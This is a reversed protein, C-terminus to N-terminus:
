AQVPQCRRFRLRPLSKSEDLHGCLRSESPPHELRNIKNSRDIMMRYTSDFQKYASGRASLICATTAQSPSAVPKIRLESRAISAMRVVKKQEAMATSQEIKKFSNGTQMEVSMETQLDSKQGIRRQQPEVCSCFVSSQVHTEDMPSRLACFFFSFPLPTSVSFCLFVPM